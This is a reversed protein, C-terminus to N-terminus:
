EALRLNLSCLSQCIKEAAYVTDCRVKQMECLSIRLHVNKSIKKKVYSLVDAFFQTCENQVIQTCETVKMKEQAITGAPSERQPMRLNFVKPSFRFM